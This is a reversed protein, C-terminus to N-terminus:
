WYTIDYSIVLLSYQHELLSTLSGVKLVSGGCRFSQVNIVSFIVYRVNEIELSLVRLFGPLQGLMKTLACSISLVNRFSLNM